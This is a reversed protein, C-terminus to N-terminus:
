LQRRFVRGRGHLKTISNLPRRAHNKSGSVEHFSTDTFMSVPKKHGIKGQNTIITYSDQERLSKYILTRLPLTSTRDMLLQQKAGKLSFGNGSRPLYAIPGTEAVCEISFMLLEQATCKALCTASCSLQILVFYLWGVHFIQIIHVLVSILQLVSCSGGGTYLQAVVPLEAIAMIRAMTPCFFTPFKRRITLISKGHSCESYAFQALRAISHLLITMPIYQVIIFQQIMM